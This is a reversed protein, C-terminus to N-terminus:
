ISFIFFYRNLEAKVLFPAKNWSRSGFIFLVAFVKKVVFGKSAVMESIPYIVIVARFFIAVAFCKDNFNSSLRYPFYYFIDCSCVSFELPSNTYHISSFFQSPSLSIDLGKSFFFCNFFFFFFHNIGLKM